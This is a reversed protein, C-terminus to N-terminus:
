GECVPSKSVITPTCVTYKKGPLSDLVEGKHVDTNPRRNELKQCCLGLQASPSPVNDAQLMWLAGAADRGEVPGKKTNILLDKLRFM